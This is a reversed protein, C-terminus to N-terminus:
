KGISLPLRTIPDIITMTKEDYEFCNKGLGNCKKTKKDFYNCKLCQLANQEKGLECNFLM